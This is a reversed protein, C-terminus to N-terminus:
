VSLRSGFIESHGVRADFRRWIVVLDHHRAIQKQVLLSGIHFSQSMTRDILKSTVEQIHTM